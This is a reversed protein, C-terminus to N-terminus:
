SSTPVNSYSDLDLLLFDAVSMEDPLNDHGSTNVMSDELALADVKDRIWQELDTATSSQKFGTIWKYVDDRTVPIERSTVAM